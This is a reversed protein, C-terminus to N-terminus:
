EAAALVGKAWARDFITDPDRIDSPEHSYREEATHDDLSLRASRSVL